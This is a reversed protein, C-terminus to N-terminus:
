GCAVHISEQGARIRELTAAEDALRAREDAYVALLSVPEVPGTDLHGQKYLIDLNLSHAM